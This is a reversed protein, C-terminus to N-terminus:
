EFRLMVMAHLFIFLVLPPPSLGQGQTAASQKLEAVTHKLDRLASARTMMRQIKHRVQLARLRDELARREPLELPVKVTQVHAQQLSEVLAGLM